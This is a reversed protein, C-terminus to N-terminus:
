LTLTYTRFVTDPNWGEREYLAQAASNSHETSLSLRVAGCARGYDAASRLLAGAVGQRRAEPTVFLDNLIFTRAMSVSSFSPYLQTFGVANGGHFALFIASQGQELRLRLFRAAGEPDAPRRYFVRYADFLPAILELDALTAQRIAIAAPMELM